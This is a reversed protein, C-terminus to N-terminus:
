RKPKARLARVVVDRWHQPLRVMRVRRYSSPSLGEGGGGWGWSPAGRWVMPWRTQRLQDRLRQM